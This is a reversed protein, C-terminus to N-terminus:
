SRLALWESTATTTEWNIETVSVKGFSTQIAMTVISSLLMLIISICLVWSTKKARTM